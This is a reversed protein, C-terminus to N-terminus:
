AQGSKSGVPENVLWVFLIVFITPRIDVFSLSTGIGNAQSITQM